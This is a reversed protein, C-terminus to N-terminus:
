SARSRRFPPIRLRQGRSAAPRDTSCPMSRGRRLIALSDLLYQEPPDIHGSMRMKEIARQVSAEYDAPFSERLRAFFTGFEPVVAFQAEIQSRAALDRQSQTAADPLRAASPARGSERWLSVGLAFAIAVALGLLVMRLAHM